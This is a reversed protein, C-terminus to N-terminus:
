DNHSNLELADSLFNAFVEPDPTPYVRLTSYDSCRLFDCLRSPVTFFCYNREALAEALEAQHNGMLAENVCVVLTKRLHLAESISGAGAHSLILDAASMDEALSPKFRYFEVAIAETLTTIYVPEIKGRGIKVILRKCRRSKFFAVFEPTDIAAILLDFDTTGVTVFVTEFVISSSSTSTASSM